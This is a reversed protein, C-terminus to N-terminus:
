YKTLLLGHLIMSSLALRIVPKVLQKLPVSGVPNILSNRIAEEPDAVGNIHCPEISTFNWNDGTKMEIGYEGYALRLTNNREM